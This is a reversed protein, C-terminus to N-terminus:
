SESFSIESDNINSSNLQQATQLILGNTLNASWTSTNSGCNASAAITRQIADRNEVGSISTRDFVNGFVLVTNVLSQISADSQITSACAISRMKTVSSAAWFKPVILRHSGCVNGRGIPIEVPTTSSQKTKVVFSRTEAAHTRVNRHTLSRLTKVPREATTVDATHSVGEKDVLYRVACNMTRIEAVEICAVKHLDGALAVREM